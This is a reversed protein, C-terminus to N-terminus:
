SRTNRVLLLRTLHMRVCAFPQDGFNLSVAQGREGLSVTPWFQDQVSVSRAAIGVFSGNVTFFVHRRDFNLGCGVIDGTKWAPGFAQEVTGLSGVGSLKKGSEAHYGLSGSGWGVLRPDSYGRSALGIAMERRNGPDLVRMEFYAVAQGQTRKLYHSCQLHLCRDRYDSSIAVLGNRAFTVCAKNFDLTSLTATSRGVQAAQVMEGTPAETPAAARAGAGSGAGAGGDDTAPGGKPSPKAEESM